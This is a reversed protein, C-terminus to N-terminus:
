LPLIKYQIVDPNTDGSEGLSIWGQMALLCEDAHIHLEGEGAIMVFTGNSSHDRLAFGAGHRSVTCHRRSVVKQPVVIDSGTDRGFTVYEWERRRYIVREGYELRLKTRESRAAGEKQAALIQASAERWCVERLARDQETATAPAPRVATAVSLSAASAESTIIQGSRAERSYELALNVTDGLVDRRDQTVPGTAFGIRVQFDRRRNGEGAMYAQMRAAAAAAGDATSLLVMVADSQKRLVRGGSLEAARVLADICGNRASAGAGDFPKVNGTLRAVLVATRRGIRRGSARDVVARDPGGM